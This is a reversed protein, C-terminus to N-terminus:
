SSLRRIPHYSVDYKSLHFGSLPESWPIHYSAPLTHRFTEPHTGTTHYPLLSSPHFSSCDMFTLNTGNQGSVPMKPLVGRNTAFVIKLFRLPRLNVKHTGKLLFIITRHQMSTIQKHIPLGARIKQRQNNVMQRSRKIGHITVM